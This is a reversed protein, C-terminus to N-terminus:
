KIFGIPYRPYQNNILVPCQNGKRDHWKTLAGM